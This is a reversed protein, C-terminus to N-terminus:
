GDDMKVQVDKGDIVFALRLTLHREKGDDVRYFHAGEQQGALLKGDQTYLALHGDANKVVLSQVIGNTTVTKISM